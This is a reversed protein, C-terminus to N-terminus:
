DPAVGVRARADDVALRDPRSASAADAAVIAGLADITALAVNQNICAAQHQAGFHVGGVNLVAGTHGQQQLSSVLLERSDLVEPHILAVRAGALAPDLVVEAPADLDNSMRRMRATFPDWM